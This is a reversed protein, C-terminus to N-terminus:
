FAPFAGPAEGGRYYDDHQPNQVLWSKWQEDDPHDPSKSWQIFADDMALEMASYKLYQDLM